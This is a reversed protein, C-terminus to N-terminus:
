NRPQSSGRSSPMAVWELIRAQLLGMSLPAQHSCDMPDCLTLCPQAVLCVYPLISIIQILRIQGCSAKLLLSNERALLCFLFDSINSTHFLNSLGPHWTVPKSSPPPWTLLFQQHCRPACPSVQSVVLWSIPVEFMYGWPVSNQFIDPHAQFCILGCSKQTVAWGLKCRSCFVRDLRGSSRVQLISHLHFYLLSCQFDLTDVPQALFITHGHFNICSLIQCFGVGMWSKFFFFVRLFGLISPFKRSKIFFMQLFFFFYFFLLCTLSGCSAFQILFYRFLIIYWLWSLNIGPTYLHSLM